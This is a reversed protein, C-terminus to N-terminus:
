GRILAIGSALLFLGALRALTLPEKPMGLLGCHDIALAAAGQGLVLVAIALGAGIKPFVFALSLIVTFGCVGGIYLFWPTGSPFFTAHPGQILFFILTGLLVVSTNVVLAAGLGIRSALGANAASQFATAVGAVGAILAFLLKTM